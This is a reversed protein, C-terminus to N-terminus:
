DMVVTVYFRDPPNEVVFFLTDGVKLHGQRVYDYWGKGIYKKNEITTSSLIKCEFLTGNDEDHLVINSQNVHFSRIAVHKPIHQV